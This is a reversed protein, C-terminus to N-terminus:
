FKNSSQAVAPHIRGELAIDRLSVNLLYHLSPEPEGPEAATYPYALDGCDEDRLSVRLVYDRLRGREAPLVCALRPDRQWGPNRPREAWCLVDGAEDLVQLCFGTQGEDACSGGDEAAPAPSEPGDHEEEGRGASQYITADLTAFLIQDGRSSLVFDDVLESQGTSVPSQDLVRAISAAGEERVVQAHVAPTALLLTALGAVIKLKM